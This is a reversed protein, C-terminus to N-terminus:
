RQRMRGTVGGLYPPTRSRLKPAVQRVRLRKVAMMPQQCTVTPHPDVGFAKAVAFQMKHCIDSQYWTGRWLELQRYIYYANRLVRLEDSLKTSTFLWLHWREAFSDDARGNPAQYPIQHAYAPPDLMRHVFLNAFDQLEYVLSRYPRRLLAVRISHVHKTYLVRGQHILANTESHAIGDARHPVGRDFWNSGCEADESAPGDLRHLRWCWDYYRIATGTNVVTLWSDRLAALASKNKKFFTFLPKSACTLTQLLRGSRDWRALEILIYLNNMTQLVFKAFAANQKKMCTQGHTHMFFLLLLLLRGVSLFHLRAIMM